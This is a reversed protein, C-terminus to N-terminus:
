GCVATCHLDWCDLLDLLDQAGNQYQSICGESCADSSCNTLCDLLPFCQSNNECKSMQTSCKSYICATCPDDCFCVDHGSEAHYDCGASADGEPACVDAECDFVILEGEVCAEISDTGGCEVHDAACPTSGGTCTGSVCSTGEFCSGCSGGCGDTGCENDGCAPQCTVDPEPDPEPEVQATGTVTGGCATKVTTGKPVKDFPVCFPKDALLSDAAEGQENDMCFGESKKCHQDVCSYTCFAGGGGEQPIEFCFAGAPCDSASGCAQGVAAALAAPVGSSDDGGGDLFCSVVLLGALVIAPVSLIGAKSRM